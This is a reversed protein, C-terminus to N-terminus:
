AHPIYWLSNGYIFHGFWFIDKLWFYIKLITQTINDLNGNQYKKAPQPSYCKTQLTSIPFFGNTAFMWEPWEALVAVEEWLKNLCLNVKLYLINRRFGFL